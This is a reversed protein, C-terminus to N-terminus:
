HGSQHRLLSKPDAKRGEPTLQTTAPGLAEGPIFGGGFFDIKLLGKDVLAMTAFAAEPSQQSNYFFVPKKELKEMRQYHALRIAQGMGAGKASNPIQVGSIRHVAFDGKKALRQMTESDVGISNGVQAHDGSAFSSFFAPLAERNEAAAKSEESPLDFLDVSTVGELPKGDKLLFTTTKSEGRQSDFSLGKKKFFAGISFSPGVRNPSVASMVVANMLDLLDQDTMGEPAKVKDADIIADLFARIDAEVLPNENADIDKKVAKALESRFKAVLVTKAKRKTKERTPADLGAAASVATEFDTDLLGAEFQSILLAGRETAHRWLEALQHLIRTVVSDFQYDATKNSAFGVALSSMAEIISKKSATALDAEPILHFKEKNIKQFQGIWERYQEITRYGEIDWNKFITEASDEMASRIGGGEKMPVIYRGTLEDFRSEAHIPFKDFPVGAYHDKSHGLELAIDQVRQQAEGETIIEADIKTQLTEAKKRDTVFEVQGRNEFRKQIAAIARINDKASAERSDLRGELAADMDPFTVTNGTAEDTLTVEKTDKNITMGEMSEEMEAMAKDMAEPDPKGVKGNEYDERLMKEAKDPSEQAVEAIETARDLKSGSAVLGDRDQLFKEGNKFHAYTSVGAGFMPFPLLAWFTDARSGLYEKWAEGTPGEVDEFVRSGVEQILLNTADQAAEQANQVGIGIGLHKLAVKAVSTGNVIDRLAKVGQMANGIQLYELPIEVAASILAMGRAKDKPVGRDLLERYRDEQIGLVSVGIMNSVMFGPMEAAPYVIKRTIFGSPTVPNLVQQDLNQLEHLLTVYKEGLEAQETLDKREKPTLARSKVFADPKAKTRHLNALTAEQGVM